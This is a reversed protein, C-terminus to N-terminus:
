RWIREQLECLTIVEVIKWYMFLIFLYYPLMTVYHKFKTKKHKKNQKKREKEKKKGEPKPCCFAQVSFHVFLRKLFIPWSMLIFKIVEKKNELMGWLLDAPKGGGGGWVRKVRGDQNRIASHLDTVLTDIYLILPASSPQHSTHASALFPAIRAWGNM